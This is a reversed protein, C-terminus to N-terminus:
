VGKCYHYYPGGVTGVAMMHPAQVHIDFGDTPGDSIAPTVMFGLVVFSLVGVIFISMLIHLM